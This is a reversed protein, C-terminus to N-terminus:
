VFLEDADFHDDSAYVEEFVQLREPTRRHGNKKLFDSFVSRVDQLQEPPFQSMLYADNIARDVM